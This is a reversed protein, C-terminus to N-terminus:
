RCSGRLGPRLDDLDGVIRFVGGGARALHGEGAFEVDLLVVEAFDRRGLVVAERGALFHAQAVGVEDGRLADHFVGGAVDDLDVAGVVGGAAAAVRGVAALDLGGHM